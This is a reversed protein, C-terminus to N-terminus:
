KINITIPLNYATRVAKGKMKGPKWKTKISQLVRLAEKGAGYGPDKLVQINSMTGDKEVVFSVYVRLTKADDIDPTNFENGVREYFKNLGGPFAPSEDLMPAAIIGNGEGGDTNGTGTGDETGTASTVGTSFNNSGDGQSTVSGPQTNIVQPTTPILATVPKTSPVIPKFRITPEPPKPAPPAAAQKPEPKPVVPEPIDPFVRIIDPEVVITGGDNEAVEPQPAFYNIVAPVSVLVLILAIGSLLAIITDKSQQQRLKYAGYAKNRGEFVLDIWGQDFVSVKSM